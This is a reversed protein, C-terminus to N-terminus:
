QKNSTDDKEITEKPKEKENNKRARIKMPLYVIILQVM